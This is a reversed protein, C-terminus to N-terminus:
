NTPPAEGQEFPIHPQAGETQKSDGESQRDNESTAKNVAGTRPPPDTSPSAIHEWPTVFDPPLKDPPPIGTTLVVLHVGSTLNLVNETFTDLFTWAHATLYMIALEKHEM